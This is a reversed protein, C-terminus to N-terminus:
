KEETAQQIHKKILADFVEAAQTDGNKEALSRSITLNSVNMIGLINFINSMYNLLPKLICLLSITTITSSIVATALIHFLTM